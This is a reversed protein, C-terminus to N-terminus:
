KFTKKVNRSFETGKMDVVITKLGPDIEKCKLFFQEILDIPDKARIVIEPPKPAIYNKAMVQDEVVSQEEYDYAFM